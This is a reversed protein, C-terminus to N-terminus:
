KVDVLRNAGDIAMVSWGPTSHTSARVAITIGGVSYVEFAENKGLYQAYGLSEGTTANDYGINCTESSSLSTAYCRIVTGVEYPDVYFTAFPDTSVNTAAPLYYDLSILRTWTFSNIEVEPTENKEALTVGQISEERIPLDWEPFVESFTPVNRIIEGTDKDRIVGMYGDAVWESSFIIEERAALIIEKMEASASDLDYYAYQEARLETSDAAVAMSMSFVLVLVLAIITWKKM